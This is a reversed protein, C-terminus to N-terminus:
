VSLAELCELAPEVVVVPVSEVGLDACCWGGPQGDVVDTHLVGLLAGDGDKVPLPFFLLVTPISSVM